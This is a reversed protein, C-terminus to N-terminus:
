SVRLMLLVADFIEMIHTLLDKAKGERERVTVLRLSTTVLCLQTALSPFFPLLGLLLFQLSLVGFFVLGFLFFM